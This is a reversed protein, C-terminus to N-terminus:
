FDQQGGNQSRYSKKASGQDNEGGNRRAVGHFLCDKEEIRALIWPPFVCLVFIAGFTILRRMKHLIIAFHM